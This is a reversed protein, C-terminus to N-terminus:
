RKKLAKCKEFKIHWSLLRIPIITDPDNEDFNNDFNINNLDISLISYWKRSLFFVADGSNENYNLLNEDKCFATHRKGLMEITVFLEPIVKLVALSDNVAEDCM